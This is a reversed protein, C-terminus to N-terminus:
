GPVADVDVEVEEMLRLMEEAKEKKNKDVRILVVGVRPQGYAVVAGEPLALVAPIVLLDEEGRVKLLGGVDAARVIHEMASSIIHGPPNVLECTLPLKNLLSSCYPGRLTRMDVLAARVDIGRELFLHTTVDGVTVVLTPRLLRLAEELGGSAIEENTLLTGWPKSLEGRLKENVRYAKVKM